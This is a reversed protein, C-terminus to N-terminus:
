SESLFDEVIKSAEAFLDTDKVKTLLELTLAKEVVFVKAFNPDNKIIDRSNSIMDALKIFQADRSARGNHERDLKKRAARNGDSPQSVDTLEWVLLSVVDGFRSRIDEFTVSTDEVTDHLLAAQIMEKTGGHAKVIDAVEETHTHYPLGTYKRVQQNHAARGFMKAQTITTM